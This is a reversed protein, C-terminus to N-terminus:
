SRSSKMTPISDPASPDRNLDLVLRSVAAHVLPADLARSLERAVGLAGPDWAVHSEREEQGLGLDGYRAPIFNSAHECIFLIPSAGHPNEVRAVATGEGSSRADRDRDVESVPDKM